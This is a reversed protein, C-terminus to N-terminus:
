ITEVKEGNDSDLLEGETMTVKSYVLEDKTNHPMHFYVTILTFMNPVVIEVFNKIGCVTENHIFHSVFLSTLYVLLCSLFTFSFMNCRFKDIGSVKVFSTATAVILWTIYFLNIGLEFAMFVTAPTDVPTIFSISSIDTANNHIFKSLFLFILLYFQSLLSNTTKIVYPDRLIALISIVYMKLLSTFLAEFLNFFFPAFLNLPCDFLICSISLILTYKQETHWFSEKKLKFYLFIFFFIQILTFFSQIILNFRFNNRSGNITDITIQKINSSINTLQIDFKLKDYNIDNEFFLPVPAALLSRRTPFVPVLKQAMNKTRRLSNQHFTTYNIDLEINSQIKQSFNLREITLFSYLFHHENTLPQYSLSISNQDNIINRTSRHLERSPKTYFGLFLTLLLVFFFTYVTHRIDSQEASEIVMLSESSNNNVDVPVLDDQDTLIPKLQETDNM